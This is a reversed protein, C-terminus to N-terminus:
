DSVIYIKEDKPIRSKDVKFNNWIARGFQQNPVAKHCCQAIAIYLEFGPDEEDKGLENYVNGGDDMNLWDMLLKHTKSKDGLISDERLIEFALLCLDFSPNPLVTPKKTNSSTPWFYMSGCDSDVEYVKNKIEIGEYNLTARNWDIIKVILGHTPVRFFQNKHQYNIFEQDTRRFMINGLHLDNHIMNWKEQIVTLACITQFLVSLITKEYDAKDFTSPDLEHYALNTTEVFEALDYDLLETAMLCVPAGFMELKNCDEKNIIRYDDTKFTWNMRSMFREYEDNEGFKYTFKDFYTNVSGYFLPFNPLINEEVLRSCLYHCFIDIYSPNSFDYLHSNLKSGFFSPYRPDIQRYEDIIDLYSDHNIIPLEKIFVKRKLFKAGNKILSFYINGHDFVKGTKKYLRVIQYKNNFRNDSMVNNSLLHYMYLYLSAAKVRYFNSVSSLLKSELHEDLTGLAINPKIKNITKKRDSVRSIIPKKKIELVNKLNTNGKKM